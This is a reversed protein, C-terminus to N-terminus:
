SIVLLLRQIEESKRRAAETLRDRKATLADFETDSFVGDCDKLNKRTCNNCRAYGDLMFCVLNSNQCPTCRGMDIHKVGLAKIKLATRARRVTSTESRKIVGSPSM